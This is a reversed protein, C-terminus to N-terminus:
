GKGEGDIEFAPLHGSSTGGLILHESDPTKVLNRVNRLANQGVM